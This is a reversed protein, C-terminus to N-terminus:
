SSDDGRYGHYRFGLGVLLLRSQRHSPSDRRGGQGASRWWVGNSRLRWGRSSGDAIVAEPSGIAGEGGHRGVREEVASRRQRGTSGVGRDDKRRQREDRPRLGKKKIIKKPLPRLWLSSITLLTLVLRASREKREEHQELGRVPRRPPNATAAAGMVPDGVLSRQCNAYM